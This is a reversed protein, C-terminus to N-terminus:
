VAEAPKRTRAPLDSRSNWHHCAEEGITPASLEDPTGRGALFWEYDEPLRKGASQCYGAAESQGVYPFVNGPLSSWPNRDAASVPKNGESWSAEYADICFGSNLRNAGVWVM